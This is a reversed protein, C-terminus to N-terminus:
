SRPPLLGNDCAGSHMLDYVQAMSALEAYLASDADGMLDMSTKFMRFMDAWRIEEEDDQMLVQISLRPDDMEPNFQKLQHECCCYCGYIFTFELMSRMLLARHGVCIGNIPWSDIYLAYMSVIINCVVKNVALTFKNYNGYLKNINCHYNDAVRMFEALGGFEIVVMAMFRHIFIGFHSSYSLAGGPLLRSWISVLKCRSTVLRGLMSHAATAFPDGYKCTM